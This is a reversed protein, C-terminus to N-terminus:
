DIICPILEECPIAPATQVLGLEVLCGRAVKRALRWAIDDRLAGASLMDVGNSCAILQVLAHLEELGQFAPHTENGDSLVRAINYTGDVLVVLPCRELDFAFKNEEPNSSMMRAYEIQEQPNLAFFQLVSTKLKNSSYNSM